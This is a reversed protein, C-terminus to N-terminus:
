VAAHEALRQTCSSRTTAVLAAATVGRAALHTCFAGHGRGGRYDPERSPSRLYREMLATADSVLFVGLYVVIRATQRMSAGLIKRAVGDQGVLALDGLGRTAPSEGCLSAVAPALAGNVLELYSTTGVHTKRLRAAVVVMGPALVVAGGGAVRRHVPVADARAEACRAEREPDQHRGIVICVDRPEFVRLWPLTPDLVSEGLPDDPGGPNSAILDPRPEIFGTM